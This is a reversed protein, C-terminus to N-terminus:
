YELGNITGAFLIFLSQWFDATLTLATLPSATELKSLFFFMEKM